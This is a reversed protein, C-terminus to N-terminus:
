KESQVSDDDLFAQVEPTRPLMVVGDVEVGFRHYAEKVRQRQKQRGERILKKVAAPILLMARAGIEVVITFAVAAGGGAGFVAALLFLRTNGGNNLLGDWYLGLLIAVAILYAM